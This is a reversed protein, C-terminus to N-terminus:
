SLLVGFIITINDTNKSATM